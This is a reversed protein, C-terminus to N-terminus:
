PLILLSWHKIKFVNNKYLFYNSDLTSYFRPGSAFATLLWEPHSLSVFNDTALKAWVSWPGAWVWVSSVTVPIVLCHSEMVVAIWLKGNMLFVCVCYVLVCSELCLSTGWVPATGPITSLSMQFLLIRIIARNVHFMFYNREVTNCWCTVFLFVCWNLVLFHPQSYSVYLHSIVPIIEPSVDIDLSWDWRTFYFGSHIKNCNYHTHETGRIWKPGHLSFRCINKIKQMQMM